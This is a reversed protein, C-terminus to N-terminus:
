ELWTKGCQGCHRQVVGRHRHIGVALLALGGTLAGAILKPTSIGDKQLVPRGRVGGSAGCEDCVLEAVIPGYRQEDTLTKPKTAIVTVAVVAGIAIIFM